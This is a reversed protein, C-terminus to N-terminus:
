PLLKSGDGDSKFGSLDMLHLSQSRKRSRRLSFVFLHRHFKGDFIKRLKNSIKVTGQTGTAPSATSVLTSPTAPAPTTSGRGCRPAPPSAAVLARLCSRRSPGASFNNDDVYRCVIIVYRCVIDVYRCVIDVYRFVTDVQGAGRAARLQLGQLGRASLRRHQSHEDRRPGRQLCIWTSFLPLVKQTM